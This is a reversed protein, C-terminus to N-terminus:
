GDTVEGFAEHVARTIASSLAECRWGLSLPLGSERALRGLAAALVRAEVLAAAVQSVADGSRGGALGAVLGEVTASQGPVPMAGEAPRLEVGADWSAVM